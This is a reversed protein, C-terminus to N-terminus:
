GCCGRRMWSARWRGGSRTSRPSVGRRANLWRAAPIRSSCWRSFSPMPRRWTLLQETVAGTPLKLAGPSPQFFLSVCLLQLAAGAAGFRWDWHYGLMAIVPLYVVGPNPMPGFIAGLALNVLTALATGGVLAVIGARTDAEWREIYERM